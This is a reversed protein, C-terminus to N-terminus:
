GVFSAGIKHFGTSAEGRGPKGDFIQFQHTSTYALMNLDFGSLAHATISVSQDHPRGPRRAKPARACGLDYSFPFGSVRLPSTVSM